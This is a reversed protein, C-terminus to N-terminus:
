GRRGLVALLRTGDDADDGVPVAEGFMGSGRIAEEQELISPLLAAVIEPDLTADQGTAVALDWGHVEADTLMQTLYERCPVDAYSLHVPADLDSGAFAAMSQQTAGRIATAPHDGLVDGDYRDGVDAVTEGAVLHPAWLQEYTVHNVLTRVDWDACPTPGSWQDTGVRDVRDVFHEISRTFLAALDAM